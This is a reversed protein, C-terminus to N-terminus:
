PKKVAENAEIGKQTIRCTSYGSGDPEIDICGEKILVCLSAWNLKEAPQNMMCATGEKAPPVLALSGSAMLDLIRAQAPTHKM